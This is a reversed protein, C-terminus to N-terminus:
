VVTKNQNKKNQKKAVLQQAYDTDGKTELRMCVHIFRLADARWRAELLRARSRRRVLLLLREAAGRERRLKLPAEKCYCATAARM